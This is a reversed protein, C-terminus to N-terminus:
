IKITTKLYKSSNTNKVSSNSIQNSMMALTAIYLYHMNFLIQDSALIVLFLIIFGRITRPTTVWLRYLYRVFFLFGIIGYSMLMYVIANSYNYIEDIRFAYHLYNVLQNLTVGFLIESIGFDKFYSLYGLTRLSTSTSDFEQLKNLNEIIISPMLTIILFLAAIGSIFVLVLYRARDKGKSNQSVFYVLLIIVALFGTTSGSCLISFAFILSFLHNRRLLSLYLIPLIFICFHAPETFFASPRSISFTEIERNVEFWPLFVNSEFSGTLIITARQWIIVISAFLGM